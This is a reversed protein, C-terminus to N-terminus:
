EIRWGSPTVAPIVGNLKGAMIGIHINERDIAIPLVWGGNYDTHDGMLNVRGPAVTHWQPARGYVRQCAQAATDLLSPLSSASDIM